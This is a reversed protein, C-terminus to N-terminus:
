SQTTEDTKEKPTEAFFKNIKEIIDAYVDTEKTQMTKFGDDLLKEVNEPPKWLVVKKDTTLYLVYLDTSRGVGGMRESVKKANYVRALAMSLQTNPHYSYKTMESFALPSGSGITAFGIYDYSKYNGCQDVVFIHPDTDIGCVIFEAKFDYQFINIEDVIIDILNPSLDQSKSKFNEYNLNYKFLINKEISTQYYKECVKALIRTIEEIPFGKNEVQKKTERIIMDGTLADDTAMMVYCYDTVTGIKGYGHEFQIGASILKDASLIIKPSLSSVESIASICITLEKVKPKFRYRNRYQNRLRINTDSNPKFSEPLVTGENKSFSNVV